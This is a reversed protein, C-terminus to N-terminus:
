VTSNESIWEIKSVKSVYINLLMYMSILEYLTGLLLLPQPVIIDFLVSSLVLGLCMFLAHKISIKDFSVTIRIYNYPYFLTRKLAYFVPFYFACIITVVFLLILCIDVWNSHKLWIDTLEQTNQFLDTLMTDKDKYVIGEKGLALPYRIYAIIIAFIYCGFLHFSTLLITWCFFRGFPYKFIQWPFM